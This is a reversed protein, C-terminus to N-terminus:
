KPPPWSSACAPIAPAFLESCRLVLDDSFIAFHVCNQQSM